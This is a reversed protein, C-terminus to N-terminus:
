YDVRGCTYCIVGHVWVAFGLSVGMPILFQAQQSTLYRYQAVLWQSQLGWNYGVPM